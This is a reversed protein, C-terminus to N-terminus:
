LETHTATPAQPVPIPDEPVESVKPTAQAPTSKPAIPKLLFVADPLYYASNNMDGECLYPLRTWRVVEFNAAKFVNVIMHHVHDAYTRGQVNLYSDPRTSSGNPNFEVYHSVPLVLSVIVHCNSRHSVNWLDQLLKSPSYHRDLLNFATILDFKVDTNAWELADLVTYGKSALRKRMKPSLETAYVDDFFPRMHETIDGNGAGLDLVKKGSSVWSSREITLFKSFQNESFLFMNGFGTMGNIDTKTYVSSLIMVGINRVTQWFFNSAIKNSNDLFMQTQNDAESSFFKQQALQSLNTEPRYWNEARLGYTRELQFTM